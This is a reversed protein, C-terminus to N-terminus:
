KRVTESTWFDLLGFHARFARPSIEEKDRGGKPPGLREKTQPLVAATEVELKVPNDINGGKGILVSTIPEVAWRSFGPHDWRLFRSFGPHDWRLFRLKIIHAFVSGKELYSWMRLSWISMYKLPLGNLGSCHTLPLWAFFSPFPARLLPIPMLFPVLAHCPKRIQPFWLASKSSWSNHPSTHYFILLSAAKPPLSPVLSNLNYWLPEPLSASTRFSSQLHSPCTQSIFDVLGPSFNFM